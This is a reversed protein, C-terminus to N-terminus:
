TVIFKQESDLLEKMIKGGLEDKIVGIVKNNTVKLLPMELEYTSSNFRTAVDETTGKSSNDAKVHLHVQRYGYLLSKRKEWIKAKWLWVM